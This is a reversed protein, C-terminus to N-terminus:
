GKMKDFLRIIRELEEETAFAISIKGKGQASCTMQVKTQFFDSLRTKLLNFEEPLRKQTKDSIQHRGSKITEGSNIAKVMDEVQRVSYGKERIESFLKVQLSPQSLGLLARAHGQDV